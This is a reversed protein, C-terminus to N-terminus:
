LCGALLRQVHISVDGYPPPYVGVLALRLAKM